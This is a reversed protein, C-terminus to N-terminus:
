HKSLSCLVYSNYIVLIIQVYMITETTGGSSCLKFYKSSRGKYILKGLELYSAATFFLHQSLSSNYIHLNHPTKIHM